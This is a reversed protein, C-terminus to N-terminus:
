SRTPKECAGSQIDSKASELLLKVAEYGKELEFRVGTGYDVTYKCDNALKGDLFAQVIYGQNTSFVKLEYSKGKHTFIETKITEIIEMLSEKSKLM